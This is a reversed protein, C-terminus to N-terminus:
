RVAAWRASRQLGFGLLVLALGLPALAMASGVGTRPLTAPRDATAALVQVDDPAASAPQEAAPREPQGPGRDISPINTM